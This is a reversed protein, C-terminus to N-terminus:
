LNFKNCRYWIKAHEAFKISTDTSCHLPDGVITVTDSDNFSKVTNIVCENVKMIEEENMILYRTNFAM